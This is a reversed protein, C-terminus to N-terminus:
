KSTPRFSKIGGGLSAPGGGSRGRPIPAASAGPRQLPRIEGRSRDPRPREARRERGGRDRGAAGRGRGGDNWGRRGRDGDGGDRRGRDGGGWGHRGRDDNRDHRGRDGRDHGRRDGRDDHRGYGHRRDDRRHDYRHDYRGRHGHHGHGPAYVVTPPYYGGYYGSSPAADYGDYGDYVDPGYGYSHVCGSLLAAAGLVVAYRSRM